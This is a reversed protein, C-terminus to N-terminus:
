HATGKAVIKKGRLDKMMQQSIYDPDARGTIKRGDDLSLRFRRHTQEILDFSGALVMARLEPTEAELREIKALEAVESFIHRFENLVDRNSIVVLIRGFSLETEGRTM